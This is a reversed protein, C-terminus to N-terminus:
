EAALSWFCTKRWKIIEGYLREITSKIAVEGEINGWKIKNSRISLCTACYWDTNNEALSKYEETTMFLCERHHWVKCMECIIGEDEDGVDVRCFPCNDNDNEATAAVPVAPTPHDSVRQQRNRNVDELEEPIAPPTPNSQSGHSDGSSTPLNGEQTPTIDPLPQSSPLIKEIHSTQTEDRMSVNTGSWDKYFSSPPATTSEVNKRSLNATEFNDYKPPVNRKRGLVGELINSGIASGAMMPNGRSSTNKKNVIKGNNM